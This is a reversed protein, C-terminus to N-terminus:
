RLGRAPAHVPALKARLQQDSSSASFLLYSSLCRVSLCTLSVGESSQASEAGLRALTASLETEGNRTVRRSLFVGVRRNRLITLHLPGDALIGSAEPLFYGIACNLFDHDRVVVSHGTIAGVGLGALM